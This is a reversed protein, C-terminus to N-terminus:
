SCAEVYGLAPMTGVHMATVTDDPGIEFRLAVDGSDANPATLYSGDVYKHPTERFGAFDGMVADKTSGLGIGEVLKVQSEGEVSVRRVKGGEVLAYAGPYKSSTYVTCDSGAQTDASTFSSDGPVAEGIKVDAFGELTLNPPAQSIDSVAPADTEMAAPESATGDADAAEDPSASCAALAIASGLALTSAAIFRKM